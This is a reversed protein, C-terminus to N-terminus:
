QSVTFIISKHDGIQTGSPISQSIITNPLLEDRSGGLEKEVKLGLNMAEKLAQNYSMSVFNKIKQLRINKGLSVVVNITDHAFVTAQEKVSQRIVLDKPFRSSFASDIRGLVLGNTALLFRANVASEGILKPVTVPREGVSETLFIRRGKKVLSLPKPEQDIVIGPEFLDSFASDKVVPILDLEELTKRVEEIPMENVDILEFEEGHRTYMPFLLLDIIFYIAILFLVFFGSHRFFRKM